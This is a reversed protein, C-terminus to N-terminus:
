PTETDLVSSTGLLWTLHLAAPVECVLPDVATLVPPSGVAAHLPTLLVRLFAPQTNLVSSLATPLWALHLAAPVECVLPDVAALVPTSGVATHLPTLLVRLFAPQARLVEGLGLFLGPRAVISCISLLLLLQPFM